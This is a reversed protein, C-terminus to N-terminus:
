SSNYLAKCPKEEERLGRELWTTVASMKLRGNGRNRELWTTVASMKLRGNVRNGEM